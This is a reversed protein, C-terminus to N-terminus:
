SKMAILVSDPDFPVPSSRFPGKIRAFGSQRLWGLVEERAYCRGRPTHLLLLVSFLAAWEHATRDRSMFVDRVILHGRPNLCRYLKRLLSRNEDIGHAHLINSVFVTDFGQPLAHRFFDVGIVRVRNAMGAERVAARALPLIRPHEVLTARLRPYRRCFAVSFAGLGGGVDLLTETRALPLKEILYPAIERGDLDLSHLLRKAKRQDSFFPKQIMPRRGDSLISALGGWADWADYDPLLFTAGGRSLYRSAFPSNAYKEGRRRMLGMACLANLFIQWGAPSGGLHAALAKLSRERQGIWGFLDLHAATILICSRWYSSESRLRQLNWKKAPM